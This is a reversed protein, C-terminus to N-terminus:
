IGIQHFAQTMDLCSIYKAKPLNQLITDVKLTPYADRVTIKNLQRADVCIRGGGGRKKVWLIPWRWPSYEIPEVIDREILNLVEREVEALVYPSMSYQKVIRPPEDGTNIEQEYLPTCNLPGTEPTYPFENLVENLLKQQEATLTHPETVCTHKESRVDEYEDDAATSTRIEPTVGYETVEFARRPRNLVLNRICQVPDNMDREKRDAWDRNAQEVKMKKTDIEYNTHIPRTLQRKLNESMSPPAQSRITPKLTRLITKPMKNKIAWMATPKPHAHVQVPKIEEEDDDKEDIELVDTELAVSEIMEPMDPWPNVATPGDTRSWDFKIEFKRFFDMGVVFYTRYSRMVVTPIAHIRGGVAYNLWMIGDIPNGARNMTTITINGPEIQTKYQLLEEQERYSIVSVMAGCDLLPCSAVGNVKVNMYPRNDGGGPVHCIPIRESHISMVEISTNFQKLDKPIGDAMTEAREIAENTVQVLMSQMEKERLANLEAEAPTEGSCEM